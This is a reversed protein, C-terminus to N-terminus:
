QANVRAGRARRVTPLMSSRLDPHADGNHALAEQGGDVSDGVAHLLHELVQTIAAVLRDDDHRGRACGLLEGTVGHVLNGRECVPLERDAQRIRTDRPEDRVERRIDHVRCGREQETRLRDRRRPARADRRDGDELGVDGAVRTAIVQACGRLERPSHDLPDVLAGVEGEHGRGRRHVVEFERADLAERAPTTADVERRVV